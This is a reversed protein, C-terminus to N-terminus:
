SLGEARIVTMEGDTNQVSAEVGVATRIIRVGAATLFVDGRGPSPTPSIRSGNLSPFSLLSLTTHNALNGMGVDTVQFIRPVAADLSYEEVFNSFSLTLDKPTESTTEPFSTYAPSTTSECMGCVELQKELTSAIEMSVPLSTHTIHGANSNAYTSELLLRAPSQVPVNFCM